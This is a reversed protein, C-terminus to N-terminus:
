GSNTSPHRNDIVDFLKGWTAQADKELWRMLVTKCRDEVKNCHNIQIVDLEWTSFGLALGIERWQAAYPNVFLRHLYLETPKKETVFFEWHYTNYM